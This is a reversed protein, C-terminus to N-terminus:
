VISLMWAFYVLWWHKLLSAQLPIGQPTGQEVELKMVGPGPALHLLYCSASRRGMRRLSRPLFRWFFVKAVTLFSIVWNSLSPPPPRLFSWIITYGADCTRLESSIQHKNKVKMYRCTPASVRFVDVAIHHLTLVAKTYLPRTDVGVSHCPRKSFDWSRSGSTWQHGTSKESHKHHLDNHALGIDIYYDKSRQQQM